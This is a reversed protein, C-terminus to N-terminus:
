LFFVILVTNYFAALNQASLLCGFHTCLLCSSQLSCLLLQSICLSFCTVEWICHACCCGEKLLQYLWGSIFCSVSSNLLMMWWKLQCRHFVGGLLLVPSTPSVFLQCSHCALCQFSLPLRYVFRVAEVFPGIVWFGWWLAGWIFCIHVLQWKEPFQIWLTLESFFDRSKSM